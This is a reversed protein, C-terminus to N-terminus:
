DYVTTFNKSLARGPFNIIEVTYFNNHPYILLYIPRQFSSRCLRMEEEKLGKNIKYSIIQDSVAYNENPDFSAIEVEQFNRLNKLMLIQRRKDIISNSPNQGYFSTIRELVKQLLRPNQCEPKAVATTNEEILSLVQSVEALGSNIIESPRPPIMTIEDTPVNENLDTDAQFWQEDSQKKVKESLGVQAKQSEAAQLCASSVVFFCCVLCLGLLFKQM